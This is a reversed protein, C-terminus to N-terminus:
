REVVTTQAARLGFAELSQRLRAFADDNGPLGFRLAEPQESFPRVLIGSQALHEFLMPAQRHRVLRFLESKGVIECGGRALEDDLRRGLKGLHAVAENRWVQDTLARIGIEIALGSIPWDGFGASLGDLIPHRGIAFGLRVGALGYFKGFSRLVVVASNVGALQIASVNAGADAFAEDVIVLGGRDAAEQTIQELAAVPLVRGDPNNPNVIVVVDFSGLAVQVGVRAVDHGCTHWAREHSSYTPSWIGVRCGAPALRPLVGIAAESGPVPVIPTVGDVHYASRAAVILRALAAREPLRTLVDSSLPQVPYPVPSIGTSLDIWPQPADAFMRRAIDLRGGHVVFESILDANLLSQSPM